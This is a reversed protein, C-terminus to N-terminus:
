ESRAGGCERARCDSQRAFDNSGRSQRSGVRDLHLRPPHRKPRVGQDGLKEPPHPDKAHKGPSRQTSVGWVAVLTEAFADLSETSRGGVEIILGEGTDHVGQM